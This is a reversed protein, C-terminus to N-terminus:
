TNVWNFLYSIDDKDIQGMMRVLTEFGPKHKGHIFNSLTADDLKCAVAFRHHTMGKRSIINNLRDGFIDKGNMKM